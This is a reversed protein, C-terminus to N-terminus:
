DRSAARPPPRRWPGARGCTPTRPLATTQEGSDTEPTLTRIRSSAERGTKMGSRNLGSVKSLSTGGKFLIKPALTASALLRGLTWCVWFGKEVVDPPVTKKKDAAQRMLLAREYEVGWGWPNGVGKNARGAGCCRRRCAGCFTWAPHLHWFREYRLNGM